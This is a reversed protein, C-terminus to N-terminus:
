NSKKQYIIKITETNENGALDIAKVKIEVEGESVGLLYDFTLDPKLIVTSDNVTVTAQENIKGLILVRKDLNKITDKDKPSNIDIKPQDTDYQITATQSKDSEVNNEGIAKAFITNRGKILQINELRFSGTADAVTSGAEPGNVFLKVTNGSAAFGELTITEKNVAAPINVFFPTQPIVIKEKTNHKRYNSIIGFFGGVAPAFFTFLLVMTIVILIINRVTRKLENALQTDSPGTYRSTGAYPKVKPKKFLNFM